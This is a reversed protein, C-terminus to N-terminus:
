FPPTPFIKLSRWSLPSKNQTEKANLHFNKIDMADLGIIEIYFDTVISKPNYIDM